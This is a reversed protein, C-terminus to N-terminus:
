CHADFADVIDWAIDEPGRGEIQSRELMFVPEGDKFLAISPSTPQAECNPSM